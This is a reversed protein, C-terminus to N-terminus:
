TKPRPRTARGTEMDIVKSTDPESTDPESTDPKSTDPKSSRKARATTLEYMFRMGGKSTQPEGDSGQGRKARGTELDNLSQRAAENENGTPSVAPRRIVEATQMDEYGQGPTKDSKTEANLANDRPREPFILGLRSMGKWSKVGIMRENFQFFSNFDSPGVNFQNKLQNFLMEKHEDTLGSERLATAVIKFNQKGIEDLPQRNINPLLNPNEYNKYAKDCRKLFDDINKLLEPSLVM